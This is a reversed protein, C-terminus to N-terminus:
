KQVAFESSSAILFIAERARETGDGLPVTKLYDIIATRSDSSLQGYTLLLGVADVLSAPSGSRKALSCLNLEIQASDAPPANCSAQDRTFRSLANVMTVSQTDTQLQFEPAYLGSDSDPLPYDPQFFNFVSPSGLPSETWDFEPHPYEYRGNAAAADFARWIATLRLLPERLKGVNNAPPRRAEDDTLVARIVAQLDGRVGHGNDKFVQAVRQIYAPSPDSAVLRQILRRSIFPAVNPHNFINDLARKLDQAASLGAPVQVGNLLTKAGYDHHNEFPKMPAPSSGPDYFAKSDAWSWGTFARAFNEITNQDYTPLANGGADLKPKGNAKLQILGISFLQLVERAYNENPRAGKPTASSNYIMSLYNGMAPSLTVDELLDRFNGFADRLLIDYYEALLVPQDNLRGNVESVVMIESLAFAVRQRLQDPATVSERWWVEQRDDQSPTGSFLPAELQPGHLSPALNFQENLWAGYGIDVVHAIDARTPGFTSQTLFRAAAEPTPAAQAQLGVFFALLGCPWISKM